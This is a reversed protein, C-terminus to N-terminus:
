DALGSSNGRLTSSSVSSIKYSNVTIKSFKPFTFLSGPFQRQVVMTEIKLLFPASFNYVVQSVEVGSFFHAIL